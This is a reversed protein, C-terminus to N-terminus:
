RCCYDVVDEKFLVLLLLGAVAAFLAAVIGDGTITGHLSSLVFLGLLVMMVVRAWSYGNWLFHGVVIVSAYVAGMFMMVAIMLASLGPPLGARGLGGSALAAIFMVPAALSLLMVVDILVILFTLEGPRQAATQARTSRITRATHRGTARAPPHIPAAGTDPATARVQWGDPERVQGIPEPAPAVMRRRRRGGLLATVDEDRWGSTRLARRIEGDSRGDDRLQQVYARGARLRDESM